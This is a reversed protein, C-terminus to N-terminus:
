AHHGSRLAPLLLSPNLRSASQSWWVETRALQQCPAPQRRTAEWCRGAHRGGALGPNRSSHQLTDLPDLNDGRGGPRLDADVLLAFSQTGQPLDSWELPPSINEGRRGYKEPIMERPAFAPSTLQLAPTPTPPVLTATPSPSPGCNSVALALFTVALFLPLLKRMRKGGLEAQIDATANPIRHFRM